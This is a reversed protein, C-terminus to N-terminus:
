KSEILSNIGGEDMEPVAGNQSAVYAGRACAYDLTTNPSENKLYYHIFTALFADGSGVTDAVQVNYGPHEYLNEDEFILAGKAGRTVCIVDLNFKSSLHSLNQKQDSGLGMWDQFIELEEENLKLVDAKECLGFILDKSFYPARFNADFVALDSRGLLIELTEASEDNRTALSGFVLVDFESNKLKEDSSIYDWSSPFIIEYKVNTPDLTNVNVLGTPYNEDVQVYEVSINKSILFNLLETGDQDKGVRSILHAPNGLQNLHYCVNMPAGGPVKGSPFNDWLMEGFCFIKPSGSM